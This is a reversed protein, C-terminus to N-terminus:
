IGYADHVDHRDNDDDYDYNDDYEDEATSPRRLSNLQTNCFLIRGMIVSTKWIIKKDKENLRTSHQSLVDQYYTRSHYYMRTIHGATITCGPLSTRSHYYIRIIRGATITCGPLIDHQSLVDQYYTRRHYYMRTIHGATITCGPLIDQQSLVDQYYSRELKKTYQEKFQASRSITMGEYFLKKRNNTFANEVNV